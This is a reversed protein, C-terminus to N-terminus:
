DIEGLHWKIWNVIAFIHSLIGLWNWSLANEVIWKEVLDSHWSKREDVNLANLDDYHQNYGLKERDPGDWGVEDLNKM